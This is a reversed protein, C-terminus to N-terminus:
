AAAAHPMPAMALTQWGDPGGLRQPPERGKRSQKKLNYKGGPSVSNISKGNIEKHEAPRAASLATEHM